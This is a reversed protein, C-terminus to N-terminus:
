PIHWLFHWSYWLWLGFRIIKTNISPVRILLWDIVGSWHTISFRVLKIPTCGINFHLIIELWELSLNLSQFPLQHTCIIWIRRIWMTLFPGWPWKSMLLSLELWTHMRIITLPSHHHNILWLITPPLDFAYEFPIVREGSRLQAHMLLFFEMNCFWTIFESCLCPRNVLFPLFLSELTLMWSGAHLTSRLSLLPSTIIWAWIPFAWPLAWPLWWLSGFLSIPRFLFLRQSVRVTIITSDVPWCSIRHIGWGTTWSQSLATVSSLKCLIFFMFFRFFWLVQIQTPSTGPRHKLRIPLILM